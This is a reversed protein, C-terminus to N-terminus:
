RISMLFKKQMKISDSFAGMFYSTKMESNKKGVGRITMCRHSASIFVAVGKPSLYQNVAQAIQATMREQLQLRHAFVDVVRALKSIGVVKGNPIYAVSVKGEIPLMHHECFSTFAINDLLVMDDFSATERFTKKLIEEPDQSYGSFFSDYSKLVRDPTELLGERNPDEGIWRLLTRVAEKAEDKSPKNEIYNDEIFKMQKSKETINRAM